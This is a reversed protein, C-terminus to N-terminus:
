LIHDKLKTMKLLDNKNLEDLFSLLGFCQVIVFRIFNALGSKLCFCDNNITYVLKIKTLMNLNSGFYLLTCQLSWNYSPM